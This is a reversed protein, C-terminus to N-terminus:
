VCPCFIWMYPVHCTCVRYQARCTHLIDSYLGHTSHLPRVNALRLLTHTKQLNIYTTKDQFKDNRWYRRSSSNNDSIGVCISQHRFIWFVCTTHMLNGDGIKLGRREVRPSYMRSESVRFVGASHLACTAIVSHMRTDSVRFVGVNQLACTAVAVSPQKTHLTDVVTSYMRSESVRRVGASHLACTAIASYMRSDTVRYVGANQLTCMAVAM